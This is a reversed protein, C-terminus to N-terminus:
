KEGPEKTPLAARKLMEEITALLEADAPALDEKGKL